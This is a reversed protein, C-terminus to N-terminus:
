HYDVIDVHHADGSKWFFCIRYRQDIRISHQGQRERKLAELQLGPGGLDGLSRAQNLLLLRRRAVREFAQFRRVSQDQFLREVDRHAFSRIM